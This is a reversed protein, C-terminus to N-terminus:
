VNKAFEVFVNGELNIIKMNANLKMVKIEKLADFDAKLEKMSSFDMIKEFVFLDFGHREKVIQALLKLKYLLAYFTSRPITKEIERLPIVANKSFLELLALLQASRRKDIPLIVTCTNM